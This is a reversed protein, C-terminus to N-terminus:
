KNKINSIILINGSDTYVLIRGDNLKIIDRVRENIHIKEINRIINKNDLKVRFLSAGKLSGLILDNNFYEFEDGIYEIGQSIAISPTWSFIPPQFEINKCGEINTPWPESINENSKYDYFIGHTKCPWGYNKNELILNLEDGGSPGHETSFIVEKKESFFLGQPNRHGSSYITHEGDESIKLIKGFMSNSDQSYKNIGHTDPSSVFGMTIFYYNDLFIVRSGFTNIPHSKCKIDSNWIKKAKGFKILNQESNYNINIKQLELIRCSNEIEKVGLILLYNKNDYNAIEVDRISVFNNILKDYNIKKFSKNAIDYIFNQGDNLTLLIINDYIENISGGQGVSKYYPIRIYNISLDYLFSEIQKDGPNSFDYVIKKIEDPFYKGLKANFPWSDRKRAEKLFLYFILFFFIIIFLFFSLFKIKNLRM